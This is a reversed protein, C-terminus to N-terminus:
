YRLKFKRDSDLSLTLHAKCNAWVIQMEGGEALGKKEKEEKGRKSKEIKM